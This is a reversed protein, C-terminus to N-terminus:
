ADKWNWWKLLEPKHRENSAYYIACRYIYLNCRDTVGGQQLCLTEFLEQPDRGGLDAPTRIGMEWLDRATKEGVGPIEMLESLYSRNETDSM